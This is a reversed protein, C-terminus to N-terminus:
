HLVYFPYHLNWLHNVILCLLHLLLDSQDAQTYSYLCPNSKEPPDNCLHRPFKCWHVTQHRNYPATLIQIISHQVTYLNYICKSRLGVKHHQAAADASWAVAWGERRHGCTATCLNGWASTACPNALLRKSPSPWSTLEWFHWFVMLNQMIDAYLSLKFLHHVKSVGQKIELHQNCKFFCCGIWFM